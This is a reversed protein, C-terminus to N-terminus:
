SNKKNTKKSQVAICVDSQRTLTKKSRTELLYIVLFLYIFDNKFFTWCVSINVLSELTWHIYETLIAWLILWFCLYIWKRVWTCELYILVCIGGAWRRGRHPSASWFISSHIQNHFYVRKKGRLCGLGAFSGVLSNGIPNHCKRFCELWSKGGGPYRKRRGSKRQTRNKTFFFCYKRFFFFFLWTLIVRLLNIFRRLVYKWCLNALYNAHRSGPRGLGSLPFLTLDFDSVELCVCGALSTLHCLTM